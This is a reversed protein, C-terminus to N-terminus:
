YRIYFIFHYFLTWSHMFFPLSLVCYLFINFNVWESFDLDNNNISSKTLYLVLYFYFGTCVQKICFYFFYSITFVLNMFPHFFSYLLINFAFYSNQSNFCFITLFLLVTIFLKIRLYFASIRFSIEFICWFNFTLCFLPFFLYSFSFPQICM